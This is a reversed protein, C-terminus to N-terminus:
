CFHRTISEQSLSYGCVVPDVSAVRVNSSGFPLSRVIRASPDAPLADSPTAEYGPPIILGLALDESAQLQFLSAIPILLETFKAGEASSLAHIATPQQLFRAAVYWLRYHPLGDRDVGKSANLLNILFEDDDATSYGRVAPINKLSPLASEASSYNM